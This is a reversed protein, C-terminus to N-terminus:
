NVSVNDFVGTALTGDVRSSVALGIHMVASTRTLTEQGVLTWADTAAKRIYASVTQGAVVLRLWVPATLVPGPTSVSTGGASRRRQFATGKETTPTVVLTAHAVNATLQDRVMLGVKTWRNVNEFDVTSENTVLGLDRRGDRNFDAIIAHRSAADVLGDFLGEPSPPGSM